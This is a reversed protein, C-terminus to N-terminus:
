NKKVKQIITPEMSARLQAIQNIYTQRDEDDCTFRAAQEALEAILDAIHQDAPNPM